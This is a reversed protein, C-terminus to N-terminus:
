RILTKSEEKKSKKETKKKKRKNNVSLFLLLVWTSVRLMKRLFTKRQIRWKNKFDVWDRKRM